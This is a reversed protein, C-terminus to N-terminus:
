PRAAQNTYRPPINWLKALESMNQIMAGLGHSFVRSIKPIGREALQAAAGTWTDSHLSGLRRLKPGLRWNSDSGGGQYSGEAEDRARQNIRM